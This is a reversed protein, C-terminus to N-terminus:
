PQGGPEPPAMGAPGFFFADPLAASGTTQEKIARMTHTGQTLAVTTGQHWAFVGRPTPPQSHSPFRGIERGDIQFVMVREEPSHYTDHYDRMWFIYDGAVPVDFEYDLWDGGVSLYWLGRGSYGVRWSPNIEERPDWAVGITTIHSSAEDEAEFFVAAGGKLSKLAELLAVALESKRKLETAPGMLERATTDEPVACMGSVTDMATLADRVAVVAEDRKGAMGAPLDLKMLQGLVQEFQPKGEAIGAQVRECVPKASGRSKELEAGKEEWTRGFDELLSALGADDGRAIAERVRDRLADRAARLDDFLRKIAAQDEAPLDAISATVKQQAADLHMDVIRMVLSERLALAEQRYQEAKATPASEMSQLRNGLDAFKTAVGRMREEIRTKLEAGLAEYKQRSTEEAEAAQQQVWETVQQQIAAMDAATPMRGLGMALSTGYERAEAEIQPQIAAQEQEAAAGLDARLREEIQGATGRMNDELDKALEWFRARMPGGAFAMLDEVAATAGDVTANGCVAAVMSDLEAGLGDYDPLAVTVKLEDFAPQVDSFTGRIETIAYRAMETRWNAEACFLKVWDSDPLLGRVDAPIEAPRQGDSAPVRAHAVPTALLLAAGLAAMAFRALRTPRRM